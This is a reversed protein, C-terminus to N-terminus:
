EKIEPEPKVLVSERLEALEASVEENADSAKQLASEIADLRELLADFKENAVRIAEGVSRTAHVLALTACIGGGAFDTNEPTLGALVQLAREEYKEVLEDATYDTNMLFRERQLGIFEKNIATIMYSIYAVTYQM